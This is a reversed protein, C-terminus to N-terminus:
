LGLLRDLTEQPVEFATAHKAHAPVKLRDSIDTWNVMDRSTVVGYRNNRYMDFYVYWADGIKLGTPGEAWFNGTIPASMTSYPGEAHDAFAVRINKQPVFPMNTENKIFMVYRDGDRRICTDIVNIGPEYFLRTPSFTEFDETTVCYIRNNLGKGAEGTTNQFDTDPFRGPITTSWFIIYEKKERDYVMEPAWSNEAKPEHAMVPLFMQKGWNVLDPSSCIGIGREHWSTTWSARFMGDPGMMVFPDRMLGEGVAPVLFSGDGKLPTWELGDHSYALHLGDQGNGYFYAFLYCKKMM